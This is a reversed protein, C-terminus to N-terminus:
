KQNEEKEWSCSLILFKPFAIAVTMKLEERFPAHAGLRESMKLDGEVFMLWTSACCKCDEEMVKSDNKKCLPLVWLQTWHDIWLVIYDALYYFEMWYKLRGPLAATFLSYLLEWWICCQIQGLSSTFLPCSVQMSGLPVPNWQNVINGM